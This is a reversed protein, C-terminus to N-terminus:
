DLLSCIADCADVPSWGSTADASIALADPLMEPPSSTDFYQVIPRWEGLRCVIARTEDTSGSDVIAVRKLVWRGPLRNSLIVLSRIVGEIEPAANRVKLTVSISPRMIKGRRLATHALWGIVTLAGVIALVSVAVREWVM